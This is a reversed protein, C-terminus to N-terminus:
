TGCFTQFGASFNEPAPAAYNSRDDRRDFPSTVGHTRPRDGEAAYVRRIGSLTATVLEHASPSLQGTTRHQHNIAAIWTGSTAVVDARDGTEHPHRRRRRPLRRCHDPAGTVYGNAACWNTFRRWAAAYTKRTGESRSSHVASAIRKTFAPPIKPEVAM